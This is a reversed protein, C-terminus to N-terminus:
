LEAEQLALIARDAPEDMGMEVLMRTCADRLARLEIPTLSKEARSDEIKGLWIKGFMGTRILDLDLADGVGNIRVGPTGEYLINQKEKMLGM